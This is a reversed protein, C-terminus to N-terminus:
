RPAVLMRRAAASPSPRAATSGSGARPSSTSARLFASSRDPRSSSASPTTHLLWSPMQPVPVDLLRLYVLLQGRHHYWHNLMIARAFGVQEGDRYAGLPHSGAIAQEVLSRAIGPSWYSGALWGHIRGIDLREILVIDRISLQVLM